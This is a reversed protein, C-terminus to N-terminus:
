KGVYYFRFTNSISSFCYVIKEFYDISGFIFSLFYDNRCALSKKMRVMLFLSSLDKRIRM